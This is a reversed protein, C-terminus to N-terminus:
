SAPESVKAVECKAHSLPEAFRRSLEAEVDARVADRTKPVGDPNRNFPNVTQEETVTRNVRKGCIVCKGSKSRSLRVSEFITKM